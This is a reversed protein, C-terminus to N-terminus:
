DGFRYRHLRGGHVRLWDRQEQYNPFVSAVVAWYAASHNMEILHAVEHAAVYDLVEPPAMVLRWSFMLNGSAACSGWRSRTDRLTIKGHTVGLKKAYFACAGALRTKAELRLFAKVRAAAMGAAMPVLMREGEVRASRGPAAVLPLERGEFMVHGGLAVDQPATQQALHKRIWPEKQRAFDLAERDPVRKPVSLTVRGDLASVRLTIRRARASRRLILEIPPEGPLTAHAM